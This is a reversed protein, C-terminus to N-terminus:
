EVTFEMFIDVTGIGTTGSHFVDIGEGERLIIPNVNPDAYGMDWVCCLPVVVECEDWTGTGTAPEDNSWIFTRLVVSPTDTAGSTAEIQSPLNPNNTDHKITTQADGGSMASLKRINMTTIVGTVSSQQNNIVWIRYVKVIKGSGVGNFITCLAKAAAFPIATAALTYTNAM